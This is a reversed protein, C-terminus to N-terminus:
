RAAVPVIQDKVKLEIKHPMPAPVEARAVMVTGALWSAPPPVLALAEGDALLEVAPGNTEPLFYVDLRDTEDRTGAARGVGLNAGHRSL